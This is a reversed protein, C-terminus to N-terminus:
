SEEEAPVDGTGALMEKWNVWAEDELTVDATISWGLEFQQVQLIEPGWHEDQGAM